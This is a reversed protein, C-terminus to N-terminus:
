PVQFIAGVSELREPNDITRLLISNDMQCPWEIKCEQGVKQFIGSYM